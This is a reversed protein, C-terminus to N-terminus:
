QSSNSSVYAGINWAGSSSQNATQVADPWSSGPLLNLQFQSGLNVGSGIAPSSPMLSFDNSSPNNFQPNANVSHSDEGSTGLYASISYATGNWTFPTATGGYYLNYDFTNGPGTGSTVDVFTASSGAEVINNEIINGTDAAGGVLFFGATEGALGNNYCVNNVFTNGGPGKAVEFCPGYNNYVINGYFACSGAGGQVNLAYSHRTPTGNNYVLNYRIANGTGITPGGYMCELAGGDLNYIGIDHVVNFQAITNTITGGNPTAVALGIGDYGINYVANSQVLGSDITKGGLVYSFIGWNADAVINNQIIDNSGEWFIGVGYGNNNPANPGNWRMDQIVMNELTVNTGTIYVGRQSAEECTIGNIITYNRYDTICTTRQPIELTETSPDVDGTPRIYIRSNVSDWWWSGPRMGSKQSSYNMAVGNEYVVDPESFGTVYYDNYLGLSGDFGANYISAIESDSLARNFVFLDDVNGNLYDGNSSGGIDLPTTDTFLVTSTATYTQNQKTGNIFLAQEGTAADIRGVVHYWRGTTLVRSSFISHYGSDLYSQWELKGSNSNIGMFLGWSKGAGKMMFSMDPAISNFYLWGGVTISTNTTGGEGVFNASLNANPRTLLMNASSNFAASYPSQQSTTSQTVGNVNTLANGNATSDLFSSGSMQAMTWYAQLNPDNTFNTGSQAEPIWSRVAVSGSIIPPNGSGYTAITIPSSATGSSPLTLQERWTCGDNFDIYDGPKFTSSNVKAITLWPTSQSTGNNSDSGVTGCNSVYYTTSTTGSGGGIGSLSIQQPSSSDSDTFSLTATRTGSATPTFLITATCSSSPPLNSGCTNQGISFDGPDAGSFGISSISIASSGNNTLTASKQGGSSNLPVAQWTISSPLATVLPGSSTGTGSLAVSLPTNSASTTISLSASRAGVAVPSFVISETCSSSAALTSACTSSSVSFDTANAGAIPAAAGMTVSNLTTNSITISQPSSSSGTNVSGFSISTPSATVTGAPEGTGSLSIQQPSSSDSDTFTLTAARAGTATPTFSIAVACSSSAALTSGCTNQSISFDHPDTGTLGISSITVPGTGKNTLTAPQQTGSSGVAVSAWIISSPLATVSPGPNVGTGSLSASLPTSSNSTTISFVASRVGAATPSFVVSATCSSSAALTSQCTTSAVSFDGPNTGSISAASLSVPGPTSNSIAISQPGATAGINANGFSLGTPSITVSGSPAIMGTGSVAVQQPSDGADDTYTLTATRTGVATPAFLITTTCSAAAALTSSCTNKDIAFDGANTGTFVVSTFNVAVTGSNTLTVTEPTGTSGVAVQQWTVTSPSATASGPPPPAQAGSGSLSIQQPSGTGTDTFTLLATRTGEATPAFLVTATCAASAALTTGCNTQSVSFDGSNAGAIAVGTISISTSGTNSLTAIQSAGTQGILVNGWSLTSPYAAASATGTSTSSANLASSCGTLSGMFAASLVVAAIANALNERRRHCPLTFLFLSCPCSM